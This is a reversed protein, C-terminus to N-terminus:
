PSDSAPRRKRGVAMLLQGLFEVPLWYMFLVPFYWIWLSQRMWDADALHIVVWVVIGMAIAVAGRRGFTSIWRGVVFLTSMRGAPAAAQVVELERRNVKNATFFLFAAYAFLNFFLVAVIWGAKAPSTWSASVLVNVIPLLVIALHLVLWENGVTEDLM